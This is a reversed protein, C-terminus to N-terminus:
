LGGVHTPRAVGGAINGVPFLVTFLMVNRDVGTQGTVVVSTAQGVAYLVDGSITLRRAAADHVGTFNATGTVGPVERIEQQIRGVIESVRPPKQERWPILPLGVNAPDLFWEQTGRRLRLRIRQQILELGTCFRSVAPLDGTLPDLYADIQVPM